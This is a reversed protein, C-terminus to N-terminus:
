DAKVRKLVGKILGIHKAEFRDETVQLLINKPAIIDTRSHGLWELKRRLSRLEELDSCVPLPSFQNDYM